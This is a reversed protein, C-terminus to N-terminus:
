GSLFWQREGGLERINNNVQQVLDPYDLFFTSIQSKYCAIAEIKAEVSSPDLRIITSNWRDVDGLAVVVEHEKRSYPFDEYYRLSRDDLWLEAALKTLQHDVHNGVALPVYVSDFAPLSVMYRSIVTILHAESVDLSGFLAEDSTYIPEGSVERLRYICDPINWHIWDAGLIHCADIDESRRRAIDNAALRWRQHLSKAFTSLEGAPPDGAAVSVVLVTKGAQTLQKILGGCSLAADDLHPSLFIADYHHLISPTAVPTM